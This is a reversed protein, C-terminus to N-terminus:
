IDMQRDIWKNMQIETWGNMKVIWRDMCAAMSGDMYRDTQKYIWGDVKRNTESHQV